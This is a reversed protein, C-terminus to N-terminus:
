PYDSLAGPEGISALADRRAVALEQLRKGPYHGETHIYLANAGGSYQSQLTLLLQLCLQTKGATSEGVFETIEGCRVGGRLCADLVQCGVSLVERVDAITLTQRPPLGSPM